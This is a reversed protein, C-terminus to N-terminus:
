KIPSDAHIKQYLRLQFITEDILKEKLWSKQKADILDGLGHLLQNKKIGSVKKIAQKLAQNISFGTKETLVTQNISWKNKLFFWVDFVDRMAFKKRTLLAALKGAVMDEQKMVMAGVGLYTKLQFGSVGRRKSIDINITREGKEYSILFFLTYKKEKAERLLGHRDLIVKIKEFVLEKKDTDLLDFDLDVSLRPLDYFLMAATGGKFGLTTRLQPDDYIDKLIEILIVRHKTHDFM